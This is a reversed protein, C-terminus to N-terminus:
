LENYGESIFLFENMTFYEFTKGVKHGREVMKKWRVAKKIM